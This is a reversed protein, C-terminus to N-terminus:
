SRASLCSKQDRNKSIWEERRREEIKLLSSFLLFSYGFDHNFTMGKQEILFEAGLLVCIFNMKVFQWSTFYSWMKWLGKFILILGLRGGKTSDM